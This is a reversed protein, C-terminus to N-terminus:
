NMEIVVIRKIVFYVNNHISDNKCLANEIGHYDFIHNRQFYFSETKMNEKFLTIDGLRILIQESKNYLVYGGYYLDKIEFKMSKELRGNSRLIFQFSKSDAREPYISYKDTIKSNLYYGFMENKENEILFLIHSKKQIKENFVSKGEEWNDIESDFVVDNCKLETWQELQKKEKENLCYPAFQVERKIKM